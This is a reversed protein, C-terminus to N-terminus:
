VVGFSSGVNENVDRATPMPEDDERFEYPNYKDKNSELGPQELSAPTSAGNMENSLISNKEEVPLTKQEARYSKRTRLVKGQEVGEHGELEEM